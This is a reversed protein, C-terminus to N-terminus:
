LKYCQEVLNKAIIDWSCKLYINESLKEGMLKLQERSVNEEIYRIKEVIARDSNDVIFSDVGNELYEPLAGVKTCLVTKCFDAATFVVGSMSAHRYPLLIIDSHSVLYNLTNGDIFGDLILVNGDDRHQIICDDLEKYLEARKGAIILLSEKWDKNWVKLVRDTGKNRFISGFFIYIRKYKNIKEIIDRSVIDEDYTISPSINAGHKQIYIKDVDEPFYKEFEQKIAFGHLIICDCLSYIDRLIDISNKGNIHPLVNHATYVFKRTYKKIHTIFIKDLKYFLLWNVHIVDIDSHRKLYNLIKVYGVFYEIGRVFSRMIGRSMKESQKFFVRHIDATSNVKQKFYYNTFVTLHVLPGLGLILGNLYESTNEIGWPDIIVVNKSQKM